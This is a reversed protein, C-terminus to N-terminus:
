RGVGNGKHEKCAYHERQGGPLSKIKIGLKRGKLCISTDGKTLESDLPEGYKQLIM